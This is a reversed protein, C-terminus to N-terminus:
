GHAAAGKHDHDWESLIQLMAANWGKPGEQQTHMIRHEPPIAPMDPGHDNRVIVGIDATAIMEADNPADGLAVTFCPAHQQRIKQMQQAKTAGYSLTLFRGGQRATVGERALAALFADKQAPTGHWIGPESFQRTKARVAGEDSLGTLAAVKQTSMDGFGEFPMELRTLLRRLKNYTAPDCDIETPRQCASGNEVIMPADGLGLEQHLPLMEVATKSSALILVADRSRLASLAPQAAAHSYTTHDLLTGDLDSFVLLRPM